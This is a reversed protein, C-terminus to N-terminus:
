LVFDPGFTDEATNFQANKNLKSLSFVDEIDLVIITFNENIREAHVSKSIVSNGLAIQFSILIQNPTANYKQAITKVVPDDILKGEVGKEKLKNSYTPNLNGFPSYASVHIGHDKAFERMDGRTNYPHLEIQIAAPVVESNRLLRDLQAVTFNSVGINRVKKTERFIREMAKWTVVYDTDLPDAVGHGNEDKPFLERGPKLAVPWHMYYMDLYDTKLKQLSKNLAPLVDETRHSNSWLKSTLFIGSRPVGSEQIADGIADENDYITATDIHRYGFKLAAKVANKVQEPESQWTGLGIAPIAAGTNLRFYKETPNAVHTRTQTSAM